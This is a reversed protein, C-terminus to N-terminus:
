NNESVSDIIKTLLREFEEQEDESLASQIAGDCKEM